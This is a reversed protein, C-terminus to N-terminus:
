DLLDKFLDSSLYREGFSPVVVVIRKGKMETRAGVKLAAHLAAGASIGVFLGQELAARRSMQMAQENEM